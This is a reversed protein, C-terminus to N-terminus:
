TALGENFTTPGASLADPGLALPLRRFVTRGEEDTLLVPRGDKVIAALAERKPMPLVVIGDAAALGVDAPDEAPTPLNIAAEESWFEAEAQALTRGAVGEMVAIRERLKARAARAEQPSASVAQEPLDDVAGILFGDFLTGLAGRVADLDGSAVSARVLALADAAMPVIAEPGQEISKAQADLREVAAANARREEANEAKFRSWDQADLAGDKFMSWMRDYQAQLRAGESKAAELEATTGVGERVAAERLAALTAEADIGVDALYAAVAEDVDEMRVRFAPKDCRGEKAGSCIYVASTVNGKVNVHSVPTMAEGCVAHRLAGKVFLHGAKSRRGGGRGRKAYRSGIADRAAQWLEEPMGPLPDHAARVWVEPVNRRQRQSPEDGPIEGLYTRRQLLASISGERWAASRLPAPFGKAEFEAQLTQAIDVLSRHAAAMTFIRVVVPGTLPDPVLGKDEDRRYGYVAGGLHRPLGALDGQDGERRRKMGRRVRRSIKKSEANADDGLRAVDSATHMKHDDDASRLWVNKRRCRGWVEVLHDTAGPADGAGRAFRDPAQAVLMCPHGAEVAARAAHDEAARLSPGRNKSYASFGEDRYEALIVWGQEEAFERADELQTKTSRRRDQTSKAAYLIAPTPV